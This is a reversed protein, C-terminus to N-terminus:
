AVEGFAEYAETMSVACQHKCPKRSPCTCSLATTMYVTVGDSGTAHWVGPRSARKLKGAAILKNADDIQRQSYPAAAIRLVTELAERKKEARERIQCARGIGLAIRAPDNLPRKCRRCRTVATTM